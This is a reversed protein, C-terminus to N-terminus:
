NFIKRWLRQWREGRCAKWADRASRIAGAKPLYPSYVAQEHLATASQLAALIRPSKSLTPSQLVVFEQPTVAPSAKVGLWGLGRRVQRYLASAQAAGGARRSKLSLWLQWGLVLALIGLFVAAFRIWTNAAIHPSPSTESQPVSSTSESYHISGVGATPEFEIWGYGPFYVEVWAHAASAPVRYAHLDYDYEGMAYGTVVRAPIGRTRLMVAMASAFHSCFGRQTRFLFDDVVDAGPPALEASLDYTFNQRIYAEIRVAQDYPTVASAAIREALAFVRQPLNPPLQLDMKLIDAPYDTGASRLENANVRPVYAQIEYSSVVGRVVATGDSGVPVLTVGIGASVPQSATYLTDAHDALLNFKQQLAYHGAPLAVWLDNLDGTRDDPQWGRGTYAGFIQARWYHVSLQPGPVGPPPPAPDNIEVTMITAQSRPLPVGIETLNPTEASLPPTDSPPPHINPFLREATQSAQQRTKDLWHSMNKWAQPTGILGAGWATLGVMLALGAATAGWGTGLDYPYDVGRSDWDAYRGILTTRALLIATCVLYLLLFLATQRSLHVNFALLFGAPLLGTLANKRRMVWWILWVSLNWALIAALFVFFGTDEVRRGSLASFLWGNVRYFFATGRLNLLDVSQWFGPAALMGRLNVVAGVGQWAAALSLLFSYAATAWGSWRTRSLAWGFLMGWFLASGVPQDDRVWNATHFSASLTLIAAVTLALTLTTQYVSQWRIRAAIAKM